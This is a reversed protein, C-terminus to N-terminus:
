YEVRNTLLFSKKVAFSTNKEIKNLNKEIERKTRM